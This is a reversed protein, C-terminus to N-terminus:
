IMRPPTLGRQCTRLAFSLITPPLVRDDLDRGILTSLGWWMLLFDLRERYQKHSIGRPHLGGAKLMTYCINDGIIRYQEKRFSTSHHVQKLDYGQFHFYKLQEFAHPNRQNVNLTLGRLHPYLVEQQRYPHIDCEGELAYSVVQTLQKAKLTVIACRLEDIRNLDILHEAYYPTKTILHKNDSLQLVKEADQPRKHKRPFRFM